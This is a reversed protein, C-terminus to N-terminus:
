KFIRLQAKSDNFESESAFQGKHFVYQQKNGGLDVGTLGFSKGAFDTFFRVDKVLDITNGNRQTVSIRKKSVSFSIPASPLLMLRTKAIRNFAIFFVFTILFVLLYVIGEDGNFWLKSAVISLAILTPIYLMLDWMVGKKDQILEYEVNQAM